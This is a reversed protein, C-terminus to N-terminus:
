MADPGLTRNNVMGLVDAYDALLSADDGALQVAKAYAPVADSYRELVTYSRALMVWGQADDPPEKMRDALKDVMAVLQASSVDSHDAGSAASAVANASGFGLQGPTGKWAYGATATVVIFVGIGALLGRSPRREPIAAAPVSSTAAPAEKPSAKSAPKPETKAPGDAKVAADAKNAPAGASAAAAPPQVVADVLRRELRAKSEQYQADDLAGGKHLEQLQQLQKRLTEIDDSMSPKEM